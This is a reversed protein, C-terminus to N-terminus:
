GNWSLSADCQTLVFSRSWNINTCPVKGSANWSSRNSRRLFGRVFTIDTFGSVFDEEVKKLFQIVQNCGADNKVLIMRGGKKGIALQEMRGFACEFGALAEAASKEPVGIATLASFSGLANYINYVAPLNVNLTISDTKQENQKGVSARIVTGSITQSLIDTVEIDAKPRKAGCGPCSYGGLHSFTIYRYEYKEGCEICGDLDSVGKGECKEAAEESFGFFVTKNDTGDALSATVPCDANLVLVSGPTGQIGKRIDNRTNVVGGFRDVQDRFLNTVLIVEPKLGPFVKMSAAEDTELVAYDYRCKGNIGSNVIFDTAIGEILNAGSRNAFCSFGARRLGEEVIRTCTTKGNTGTICICKVGDSLVSLLEPCIRLAIEGPKATGGRHLVRCVLRVLKGIMIAAFARFSM